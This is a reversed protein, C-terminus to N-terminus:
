RVFSPSPLIFAVPILMDHNLCYDLLRLGLQFLSLDCRDTRHIIAVLGDKRARYGLYIIWIYALCAAIMLRALREPASLHSKHLHFGRSKQDSFFTEIRFRKRYFRCAEEMLELNTVLFLPKQYGIRWWAIFQVSGFAQRTFGVEPLCLCDGPLLWLDKASTEIDEVTLIINVSTRCVYDWGWDQLVTLLEVSDFEGDGLFVVDAGEPLKKSLEKLLHVHTSAPFHGKKGKVVIWALPLTRQRYVVSLMLALCGRGVESGDMVLVLTAGSLGALLEKAFPLVELALEKSDAQAENVWRSYRKVRSEPKAADPVKAAIQPYNTRQSGVIGSILAALTNLKRAAHGKLEQPYMQQLATKISRYRRHNDSM